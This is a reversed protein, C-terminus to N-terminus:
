GPFANYGHVVGLQSEKEECSDAVQLINIREPKSHLACRVVSQKKTASWVPVLLDYVSMRRLKATDAMNMQILGNCEDETTEVM